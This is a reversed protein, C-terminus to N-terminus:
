SLANKAKEWNDIVLALTTLRKTKSLIHISEVNVGQNALKRAVKALEGPRDTLEVVM